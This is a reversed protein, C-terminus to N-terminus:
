NTDRGTAINNNCESFSITTFKCMTWFFSFHKKKQEKVTCQDLCNRAPLQKLFRYYLMVGTATCVKGRTISVHNNLGVVTIAKMFNPTWFLCLPTLFNRFISGILSQVQPPWFFCVSRYSKHWPNKAKWGPLLRGPVQMSLLIYCPSCSVLKILLVCWLHM